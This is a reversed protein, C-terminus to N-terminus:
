LQIIGSYYYSERCFRIEYEGELYPPLIIHTDFASVITEYIVEETEIDVIAVSDCFGETEFIITNGDQYVSPPNVPTRPRLVGLGDSPRVYTLNIVTCSDGESGFANSACLLAFALILYIQRMNFQTTLFNQHLLICM